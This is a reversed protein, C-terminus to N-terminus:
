LKRLADIMEQRTSDGAAIAKLLNNKQDQSPNDAKDIEEHVNFWSEYAAIFSKLSCAVTSNTTQIELQKAVIQHVQQYFASLDQRTIYM